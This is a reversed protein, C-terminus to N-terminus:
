PSNATSHRLTVSTEQIRSRDQAQARLRLRMETHRWTNHRGRTGADPKFRRRRVGPAERYQGDSGPYDVSGTAWPALATVHKFTPPAAPTTLDKNRGASSDLRSSIACSGFPFRSSMSRLSRSSEGAARMVQRDVITSITPFDTHFAPDFGPSDAPSLSNNTSRSALSGTRIVVDQAVPEPATPFMPIAPAPGPDRRRCAAALRATTPQTDMLPWRSSRRFTRMTRATACEDMFETFDVTELM